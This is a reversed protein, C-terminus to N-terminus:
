LFLTEHKPINLTARLGLGRFGVGNPRPLRQAPIDKRLISLLLTTGSFSQKALLQCYMFHSFIHRFSCKKPLYEAYIYNYLICMIWIQNDVLTNYKNM